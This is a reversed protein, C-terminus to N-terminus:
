RAAEWTVATPTRWLFRELHGGVIGEIRRLDAETEAMCVLDLTEGAAMRCEGGPFAARAEAGSVEVAIKHAFHKALQTMTQAPKPAAVRAQSRFM